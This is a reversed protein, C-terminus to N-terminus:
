PLVGGACFGETTDFAADGVASAACAGEWGLEGGTLRGGCLFFTIGELQVGAGAAAESGVEPEAGDLEPGGFVEPPPLAGVAAAAGAGVM